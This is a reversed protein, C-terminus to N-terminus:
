ALPQKKGGGFHEWLKAIISALCGTYSHGARASSFPLFSIAAASLRSSTLVSYTHSLGGNQMPLHANITGSSVRLQLATTHLIIQLPLRQRTSLRM